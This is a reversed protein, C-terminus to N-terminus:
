LLQVTFGMWVMYAYICVYLIIAFNLINLFQALVM